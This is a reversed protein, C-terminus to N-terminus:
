TNTLESILNELPSGKRIVSISYKIGKNYYIARLIGRWVNLEKNSGKDLFKIFTDKIKKFEKARELFHEYSIGYNNGFDALIEPDLSLEKSKYYELFLAELLAKKAKLEDIDKGLEKLDNVIGTITNKILREEFLTTQSFTLNTLDAKLVNENKIINKLHLELFKKDVKEDAKFSKEIIKLLKDEKEKPIQAVKEKPAQTETPPKTPPETPQEVKETPTQPETPPKPQTVQEIHETKVIKKLYEAEVLKINGSEDIQFTGQGIRKMMEELGNLDTSYGKNIMLEKFKNDKLIENAWELWERHAVKEIFEKFKKPEKNTIELVKQVVDEGEKIKFFRKAFDTQNKILNTIVEKDEKKSLYYDIYAGEIGRKGIIIKQIQPQSAIKIEESPKVSSKQSLIESSSEEKAVKAVSTTDKPTKSAEFNQEEVKSFKQSQIITELKVGGLISEIMFSVLASSGLTILSRALTLNRSNVREKIFNVLNEEADKLNNNIKEWEELLQEKLDKDPIEKYAQEKFKLARNIGEINELKEFFEEKYKSYYFREVSSGIMYGTVGSILRRLFSMGGGWLVLGVPLGKLAAFSIAGIVSGMSAMAGYFVLTHIFSKDKFNKIRISWERLRSLLNRKTKSREIEIELLDLAKKTTKLFVKYLNKKHKESFEEKNKNYFSVLEKNIESLIQDRTKNIEEAKAGEKKWNSIISEVKKKIIEEEIKRPKELDKLSLETSQNNRKNEKEINM